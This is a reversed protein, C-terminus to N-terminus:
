DSYGSNVIFLLSFQLPNNSTKMRSSINRKIQVQFISHRLSVIEEFNKNKTDNLNDILTFQSLLTQAVNNQERIDSITIKRINVADLLLLYNLYMQGFGYM